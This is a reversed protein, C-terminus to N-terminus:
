AHYLNVRHDKSYLRNARFLKILGMSAEQHIAAKGFVLEAHHVPAV